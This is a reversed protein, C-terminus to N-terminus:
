VDRSTKGYQTVCCREWDYVLFLCEDDDFSNQSSVRSEVAFVFLVGVADIYWSTKYNGIRTM